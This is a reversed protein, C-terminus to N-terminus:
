GHLTEELEVELADRAVKARERDATDNLFVEGNAGERITLEEPEECSKKRRPAVFERVPKARYECDPSSKELLIYLVNNVFTPHRTLTMHATPIFTVADWRIPTVVRPQWDGGIREDMLTSSRLVTGDGHATEIIRYHTRDDQTPGIEVRSPTYVGDGAFLHMAVDRPADVPLDIARHFREAELLCKRQHDLAIKRREASSAVAPLISAIFDEAEPNALGWNMREWREPSFLDTILEGNTDVFSKHRARPLLQFLTPYTGLLAGSYGPMAPTAALGRSLKDLAFLSGANPTGILIAHDARKAGDWTLEPLEDEQDPLTQEGYRLFYRLLLGGMSHAVFDCRIDEPSKPQGRATADYAAFERVKEVFTMLQQANEPVSRRWDYCFQFCTAISASGYDLFRRKPRKEGTLYGGVGLVELIASYAQVQFPLGVLKFRFHEITGTPVVNDTLDRLPTGIEMPHAARQMDEPDSMLPYDAKRTSGWVYKGDAPVELRSGMIGPIIILPNRTSADQMAAEGYIDAIRPHAITSIGGATTVVFNRMKELLMGM